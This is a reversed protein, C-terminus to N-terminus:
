QNVIYSEEANNAIVASAPRCYGSSAHGGGNPKAAASVGSMNRRYQNENSNEYSKV